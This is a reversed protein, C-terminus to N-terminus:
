FSFDPPDKHYPKFIAIYHGGANLFEGGFLRYLDSVNNEDATDAVPLDHDPGAIGIFHGGVGHEDGHVARMLNDAHADDGRIFFTFGDQVYV